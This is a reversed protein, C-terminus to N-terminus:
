RVLRDLVVQEILHDDGDMRDDGGTM